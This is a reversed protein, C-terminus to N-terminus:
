KMLGPRLLGGHLRGREGGQEKVIIEYEVGAIPGKVSRVTGAEEMRLGVCFDSEKYLRFGLRKGEEKGADECLRGRFIFPTTIGGYPNKNQRKFPAGFAVQV